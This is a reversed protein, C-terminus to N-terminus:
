DLPFLHSHLHPTFLLGKPTEEDRNSSLPDWVCSSPEFIWYKFLKPPDFPRHQERRAHAINKGGFWTETGTDPTGSCLVWLDVMFLFYCLNLISKTHTCTGSTEFSSQQSNIERARMYCFWDKSQARIRGQLRQQEVGRRLYRWVAKFASASLFILINLRNLQKQGQEPLAFKDIKM